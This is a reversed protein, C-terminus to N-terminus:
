ITATIIVLLPVVRDGPVTYQGRGLSRLWGAAVLQRLHHYLQGTTGLEPDEGLEAAGRTGGLIKRLLRLRVPHGLAALAPAHEPWDADLLDDLLRAYQWDYHEGTPLDVAGTYLVAGTTEAVRDRLGHLAWFTEASPETDARETRGVLDAVVRELASLREHLDDAM